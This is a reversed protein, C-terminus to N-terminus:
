EPMSPLFALCSVTIRRGASYSQCDFLIRRRVRLPECTWALVITADDDVRVPLATERALAWGTVWAQV